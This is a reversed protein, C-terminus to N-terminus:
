ALGKKSSSDLYSHAAFAAELVALQCPTYVSRHLIFTQAQCCANLKSAIGSQGIQRRHLENVFAEIAKVKVVDEFVPEAPTTFHLFKSVDTAIEKAISAKKESCAM